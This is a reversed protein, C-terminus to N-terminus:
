GEMDFKQLWCELEYFNSIEVDICDRNFHVNAFEGRLIRVTHMGVHKGGIFDTYPNDGVYLSEQPNVNLVNLAYTYANPEPKPSKINDAYVIITMLKDLGLAAVKRQQMKVNGNTILGIKYRRTLRPLVEQVDEYLVISCIPAKHFLEVLEKVLNSDPQLSLTILTEDFLRSYLSGKRHFINWLTNLILDESLSFCSSLYSAVQKFASSFYSTSDYLTGDLDFLIAKIPM